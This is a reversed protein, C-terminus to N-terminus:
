FWIYYNKAYLKAVLLDVSNSVEQKYSLKKCSLLNKSIIEPVIKLKDNNSSSNNVIIDNVLLCDIPSIDKNCHVSIIINNELLNNYKTKAEKNIKVTQDNTHMKAHKIFSSISNFSRSCDKEKCLLKYCEGAHYFKLHKSLHDLCNFSYQCDNKCPCKYLLMKLFFM